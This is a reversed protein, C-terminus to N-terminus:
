IDNKSLNNRLEENKIQSIDNIIIISSEASGGIEKFSQTNFMVQGKLEISPSSLAEYLVIYNGISDIHLHEVRNVGYLEGLSNATYEFVENPNDYLRVKLIAERLIKEYRATKNLNENLKFMHTGLSIQRAIPLLFDLNKRSLLELSDTNSIFFASELENEYFIPLIIENKIDLSKFLEKFSEPYEPANIDNIIFISDEAILKDKLYIDFERPYLMKGKASPITENKRYEDIIESFGNMKKEYFRFHVRDANFLKGLEMMINRIAADLDDSTLTHIIIDKLYEQKNNLKDFDAM